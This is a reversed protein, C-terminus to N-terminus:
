SHGACWMAEAWRLRGGRLDGKGNMGDERLWHSAVVAELRWCRM